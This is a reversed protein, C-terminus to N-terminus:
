NLTLHLIGSDDFVNETTLLSQSYSYSNFHNGGDIYANHTIKSLSQRLTASSIDVTFSGNVWSYPLNTFLLIDTGSGQEGGLSGHPYGSLYSSAIRIQM